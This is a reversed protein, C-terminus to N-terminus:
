SRQDIAIHRQNGHQLIQAFSGDCAHQNLAAAFDEALREIRTENVFHLEIQTRDQGSSRHDREWTLAGFVRCIRHAKAANRISPNSPANAYRTIKVDRSVPLFPFGKM